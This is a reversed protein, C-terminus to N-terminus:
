INYLGVKRFQSTCYNLNPNVTDVLKYYINSSYKCLTVKFTFVQETHTGDYGIQHRWYIKLWDAASSRQTMKSSCPVTVCGGMENKQTASLLATTCDAVHDNRFAETLVPFLSTSILFWSLFLSTKNGATSKSPAFHLYM